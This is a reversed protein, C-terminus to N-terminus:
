LWEKISIKNKLRYIILPIAIITGGISMYVPLAYNAFTHDQIALISIGYGFAYVLWMLPRDDKPKVLLYRFTPILAMMDAFLAIYLAYQSLYESDQFQYWLILSIVGLVLCFWETADPIKINKPYKLISILLVLLPNTFGFVAPWVSDEAGSSRYALLLALGMLSWVFWSVPNPKIKGQYVRICYPIASLLVVLGSIKGILETTEM